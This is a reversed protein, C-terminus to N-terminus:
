SLILFNQANLSMFSKSINTFQILSKMLHTNSYTYIYIVANYNQVNYYDWHLMSTLNNFFKVPQSVVWTKTLTKTM